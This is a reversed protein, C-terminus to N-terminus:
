KYYDFLIQGSFSGLLFFFAFIFECINSFTDCLHSYTKNHLTPNLDYKYIYGDIMSPLASIM